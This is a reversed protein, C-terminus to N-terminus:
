GQLLLGPAAARRHRDIWAAWAVFLWQALGGVAIAKESPPPPGLLNAGYVALVFAVLAALAWRGTADRAPGARLYLAVGAGLIGVEIAVTAPLSSWLGLGVKPGDWLLPLDPRHVIADLVWHSAVLAGAVIAGRRYGGRWLYVAGFALSWLVVASAGHTFPYREFDLPTVATNGPDIRVRELGALLMVPWVLDLWVAAAVLTGLSARPAARKAAMAIGIHGMFM